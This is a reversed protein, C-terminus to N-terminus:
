GAAPTPIHQVEFGRTTRRDRLRKRLSIAPALLSPLILCWLPCELLLMFSRETVELPHTNFLWLSRSFWPERSLPRAGVKANLGPHLGGLTGDPQSLCMIVFTGQGATVEVERLTGGGPGPVNVLMMGWVVFYGLTLGVAVLFSAGVFTAFVKRKM